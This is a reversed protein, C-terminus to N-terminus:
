IILYEAESLKAHSNGLYDMNVMSMNSQGTIYRRRLDNAAGDMSVRGNEICDVKQTWQSLMVFRNSAM